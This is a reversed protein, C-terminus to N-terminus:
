ILRYEIVIMLALATGGVLKFSKLDEDAMLRHILDLTSEEVTEKHLM